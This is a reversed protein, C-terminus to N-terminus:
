KFSSAAAQAAARTRIRSFAALMGSAADAAHGEARVEADTALRRFIVLDYVSTYDRQINRGAPTFYKSTTLALGAGYQLTYVSQVLGKGWSTEGVVLGRDHDQIAGAVIESASASVRVLHIKPPAFYTEAM